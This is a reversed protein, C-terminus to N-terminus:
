ACRERPGGPTVGARCHLGAALVESAPIAGIQRNRREADQERAKPFPPPIPVEPDLQAQAEGRPTITPRSQATMGQAGVLSRIAITNQAACTPPALEDGFAYPIPRARFAASLWRITKTDFHAIAAGSNGAYLSIGLSLAAGPIIRPLTRARKLGRLCGCFEPATPGCPRGLRAVRGGCSKAFAAMAADVLMSRFHGIAAVLNDFCRIRSPRDTAAGGAARPSSLSSQSLLLLGVVVGKCSAARAGGIAISATVGLDEPCTKAALFAFLTPAHLPYDHRPTM